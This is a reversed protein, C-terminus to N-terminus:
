GDRKLIGVYRHGAKSVLQPLRKTPNFHCLMVTQTMSFAAMRVLRELKQAKFLVRINHWPVLQRQETDEITMTTSLHVAAANHMMEQNVGMWFCLFDPRNKNRYEDKIGFQVGTDSVSQLESDKSIAECTAAKQM